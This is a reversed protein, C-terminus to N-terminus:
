FILGAFEIDGFHSPVTSTEQLIGVCVVVFLFMPIIQSKPRFYTNTNMSHKKTEKM